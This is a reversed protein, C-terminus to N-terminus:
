YTSKLKAKAKLFTALANKSHQRAFNEATVSDRIKMANLIMYHEEMAKQARNDIALTIPRILAIKNYVQALLDVLTKNGSFKAITSHFENNLDMGKIYNGKAIANELQKLIEDLFIIQHENIRDTAIKTATGQLVETIVFLEIADETSYEVVVLGTKSKNVILGESELRKLAERVPTRSANFLKSLKEEKM